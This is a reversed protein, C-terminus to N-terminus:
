IALSDSWNRKDIDKITDFLPSRDTSESPRKEVMFLAIDKANVPDTKARRLESKAFARTRVPNIVTVSFPKTQRKLFYYLNKWYDGTAELGIFLQKTQLKGSFHDLKDLLTLYGSYQDRIIFTKSILKKDENMIAIDHKLKSIDIGVFLVPSTM